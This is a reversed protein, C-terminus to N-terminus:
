TKIKNVFGTWGELKHFCGEVGKENTRSASLFNSKKRALLFTSFVHKSSMKEKKPSKNLRTEEDNKSHM